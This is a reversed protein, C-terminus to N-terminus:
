NHSKEVKCILAAKVDKLYDMQIYECDMQRDDTYRIDCAWQLDGYDSLFQWADAVLSESTFTYSGDLNRNWSTTKNM